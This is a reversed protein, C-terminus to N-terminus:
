KRRSLRAFRDISPQNPRAPNHASDGQRQQNAGVNAQRRDSGKFDPSAWAAHPRSEGAHQPREATQKADVAQDRTAQAIALQLGLEGVQALGVQDEGVLQGVQVLPDSVTVV